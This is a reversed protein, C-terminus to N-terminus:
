PSARHTGVEVTESAERTNSKRLVQTDLQKKHKTKKKLNQRVKHLWDAGNGWKINTSM